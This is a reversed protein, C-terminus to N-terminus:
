NIRKVDRQRRVGKVTLELSEELKDRKLRPSAGAPQRTEEASLRGGMRKGNNRRYKKRYGGHGRGKRRCKGGAIGRGKKEGAIESATFVGCFKQNVKLVTNQRPQEKAQCDRESCVRLM